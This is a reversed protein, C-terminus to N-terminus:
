IGRVNLMIGCQNECSIRYSSMNGRYQLKGSCRPCPTKIIGNTQYEDAARFLVGREDESIKINM